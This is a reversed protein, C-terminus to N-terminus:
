SAGWVTNIMPVEPNEAILGEFPRWTGMILGLSPQTM